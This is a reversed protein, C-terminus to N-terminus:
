TIAVRPMPSTVGQTAVRTPLVGKRRRILDQFGWFCGGALIAKETRDTM